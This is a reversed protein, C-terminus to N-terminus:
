GPRDFQHHPWLWASAYRGALCPHARTGRSFEFEDCGGANNVLIDLGGWRQMVQERIQMPADPHTIDCVIVLPKVGGDAQIDQALGNLLEERRAVIALECGERALMQAMCRGLGVSAGTVLATKGSLQLDMTTSGSIGM